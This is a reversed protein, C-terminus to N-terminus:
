SGGRGSLGRFLMRGMGIPSLSPHSLWVGRGGWTVGAMMGIVPRGVTLFMMLPMAPLPMAPM